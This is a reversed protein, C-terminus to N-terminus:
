KWKRLCTEEASMNHRELLLFLPFCRPLASATATTGHTSSSDGGGKSLCDSDVGCCGKLTFERRTGKMDGEIRM